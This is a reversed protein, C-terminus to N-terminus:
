TGVQGHYVDSARQDARDTRHLDLANEITELFKRMSRERQEALRYKLKLRYAEDDANAVAEAKVGSYGEGLMLRSKERDMFHEYDTKATGYAAGAENLAWNFEFKLAVLQVGEGMNRTRRAASVLRVHLAENPDPNRLGIKQLIALVDPELAM